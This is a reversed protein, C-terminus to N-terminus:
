YYNIINHDAYYKFIRLYYTEYVGECTNNNNNKHIPVYKETWHTGRGLCQSAYFGCCDM